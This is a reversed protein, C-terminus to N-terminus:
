DASDEMTVFVEMSSDYRKSTWRLLVVKKSEDQAVESSAAKCDPFHPCPFPVSFSALKWCEFPGIEVDFRELHVAL